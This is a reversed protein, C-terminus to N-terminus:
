VLRILPHEAYESAIELFAGSGDRHRKMAELSLIQLALATGIVVVEVSQKMVLIRRRAHVSM